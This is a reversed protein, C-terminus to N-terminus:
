NASKAKNQTQVRDRFVKVTNPLDSKVLIEQVWDPVAMGPNNYVDYVLIQKGGKYPIVRWYGESQDIDGKKLVWGSVYPRIAFMNNTYEVKKSVFGFGFKLKQYQEYQVATAPLVGAAYTNKCAELHPVFKPQGACDMVVDFVQQTTGKVMGIAVVHTGKYGKPIPRTKVLVEGKELEALDKASIEEEAIANDLEFKPFVPSKPVMSSQMMTPATVEDGYTTGVGLAISSISGLVLVCVVSWRNMM